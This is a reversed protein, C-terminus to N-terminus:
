RLPGRHAVVAAHRSSPSRLPRAGAQGGGSQSFHPLRAWRLLRGAPRSRRLIEFPDVADRRNLRLPQRQHDPLFSPRIKSCAQSSLGAGRRWNVRANELVDIPESLRVGQVQGCTLESADDVAREGGHARGLSGDLPSRRGLPRKQPKAVHTRPDSRASCIPHGRHRM